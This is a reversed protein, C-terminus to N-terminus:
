GILAHRAARRVAGYARRLPAAVPRALISQIRRDAVFAYGTLRSGALAGLPPADDPALDPRVARAMAQEGAFLSAASGLDLGELGARLREAEPRASRLQQLKRACALAAVAAEVRREGGAGAYWERVKGRTRAADLLVRLAGNLAGETAARDPDGLRAPDALRSELEAVTEALADDTERDLAALTAVRAPEAEAMARVAEAREGIWFVELLPDVAPHKRCFVVAMRGAREERASFGALDM